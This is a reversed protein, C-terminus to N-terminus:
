SKLLAKKKSKVASELKFRACCLYAEELNAGSLRPFAVCILALLQLVAHLLVISWHDIPDHIKGKACTCTVHTLSRRDLTRKWRCLCTWFFFLLRLGFLVLCKKTEEKYERFHNCTRTEPCKRKEESMEESSFLNAGCFHPMKLSTRISSFFLEQCATKKRLFGRIEDGLLSWCGLRWACSRPVVTSRLIPTLVGGQDTPRSNTTESHRCFGTFHVGHQSFHSFIGCM